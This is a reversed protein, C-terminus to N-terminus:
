FLRLLQWQQLVHTVAMFWLLLNSGHLSYACDVAAWEPVHLLAPASLDTLFVFMKVAIKDCKRSIESM